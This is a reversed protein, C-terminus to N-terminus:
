RIKFMIIRNMKNIQEINEMTPKKNINERINNLEKNLIEPNM